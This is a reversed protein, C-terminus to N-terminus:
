PTTMEMTLQTALRQGEDRLSQTLFPRPRMRRTGLELVPGYDLDTFVRRTLRDPSDNFIHERLRGSESRPYEAPSSSRHRGSGDPPGLRDVVTARLQEAAVDLRRALETEIAVIVDNGHWDITNDNTM